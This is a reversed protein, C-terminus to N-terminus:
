VCVTLPPESSGVSAGLRVVDLECSKSFWFWLKGLVRGCGVWIAVVMLRQEGVRHRRRLPAGPHVLGCGGNDLIGLRTGTSAGCALRSGDNVGISRSSMLLRHIAM